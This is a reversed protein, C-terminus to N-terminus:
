LWLVQPLESVDRQRGLILSFMPTRAETISCTLLVRIGQFVARKFGHFPPVFLM